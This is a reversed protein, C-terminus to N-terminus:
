EVSSSGERSRRALMRLPAGGEARNAMLGRVPVCFSAVCRGDHSALYSRRVTSRARRLRCPPNLSTVTSVQRVTRDPVGVTVVEGVV